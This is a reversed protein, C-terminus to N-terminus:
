LGRLSGLGESIGTRLDSALAALDRGGLGLLAIPAAPDESRRPDTLRDALAVAAVLRAHPGGGFEPGHHQAAVAVYQPALSWSGLLEAGLQQHCIGLRSREEDPTPLLGGTMEILELYPTTRETLLLMRGCDHMLGAVFAEEAGRLGAQVSVIRAGLASSISHEWILTAEAVAGDPIRDRMGAMISAMILSRLRALGILTIAHSLTTIPQLFGFLASNALRLVAATLSQDPEIVQRLQESSVDPDGLLDLAHHAARPMTPLHGSWLATGAGGRGRNM